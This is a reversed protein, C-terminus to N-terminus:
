NLLLYSILNIGGMALVHVDNLRGEYDELKFLGPQIIDEWEPRDELLETWVNM